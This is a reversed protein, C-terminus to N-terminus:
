TQAAARSENGPRRTEYGARHFGVSEKFALLIKTIVKKTQAINNNRENSACLTFPFKTERKTFLM